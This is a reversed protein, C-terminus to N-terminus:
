RAIAWISLKLGSTRRRNCSRDIVEIMDQRSLRRDSSRADCYGARNEAGAKSLSQFGDLLQGADSAIQGIFFEPLEVGLAANEILIQGGGEGLCRLELAVFCQKSDAISRDKPPIDM